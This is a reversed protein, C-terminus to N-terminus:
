SNGKKLSSFMDGAKQWTFHDFGAAKLKEAATQVELGLDEKVRSFFEKKTPTWLSDYVAAEIKEPMDLWKGSDDWLVINTQGSRAWYILIGWQGNNRVMHLELNLSSELRKREVPTVTTKVTPKGQNDRGDELHYIWLTDCGWRTVAHQIQARATSKDIFATAKNVNVGAANDRTARVTLPTLIATLSDVVITAVGAGPMNEELLRAIADTSNNDEAQDSLSLVDGDVLHAVETFRHDADIPLIPARMQAAFTSKGSGPYGVLAWHRPPYRSKVIKKFPM